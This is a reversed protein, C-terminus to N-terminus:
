DADSTEAGPQTRFKDPLTGTLVYQAYIKDMNTVDPHDLLIHAYEKARDTSGRNMHMFVALFTLEPRNAAKKVWFDLDELRQPMDRIPVLQSLDLQTEMLPPFLRIAKRLALASTMWEGAAFTSLSQGLHALPNQPRVMAALEYQRTADYFKGKQFLSEARTMYRNFLDDSNGALSHLVIENREREVLERRKEKMSDLAAEQTQEGPAAQGDQTEVTEGRALRERERLQVLMDLFVDMNRGPLMAEEGGIPRVTGRREDAQEDSARPQSPDRTEGSPDKLRGALQEGETRGALPQVEQGTQNDVRAQVQQDLPKIETQRESEQEAQREEELRRVEDALRLRGVDNMSGFVDTGVQELRRASDITSLAAQRRSDLAELRDPQILLSEGAVARGADLPMIPRYSATADQYLDETVRTDIPQIGVDRGPTPISRTYAAAGVDRANMTQRYPDRYVFESPNYTSAQGLDAVGVSQRRFNSLSASPVDSAFEGTISPTNVRLGSLGRTRTASYINTDLQGYNRPVYNAGQSGVQPNYDLVQGQQIPQVQGLGASATLLLLTAMAMTRTTM